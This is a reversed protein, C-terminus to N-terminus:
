YIKAKDINDAISELANNIKLMTNRIDILVEILIYNEEKPDVRSLLEKKQNMKNM